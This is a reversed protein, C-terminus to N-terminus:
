IVEWIHELQENDKLALITFNQLPIGESCLMGADTFRENQENKICDWTNILFSTARHQFFEKMIVIM